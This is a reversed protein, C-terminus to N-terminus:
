YAEFAVPTSQVRPSNLMLIIKEAQVAQALLRQARPEPVAFDDILDAAVLTALAKLMGTSVDPTAAEEADAAIAQYTLKVTYNEAPTPWFYATGAAIFVQEPEGRDTKNTIAQYQSHSIIELPVDDGNARVAASIPFLFDTVASLSKTATGAVLALDTTAGSVNFWLTGLAHMEKLRLNLAEDVLETQVGSATQRPDLVRLKRLVMDRFQTLTRTFTYTPV